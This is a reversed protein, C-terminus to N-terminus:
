GPLVEGRSNGVVAGCLVTVIVLLVVWTPISLVSVLIMKLGVFGLILALAIPLTRFRRMAAAVVFYLSRLGLVAFVNSTFILFPDRTVAFVAPISDTAFAIDSLEVVVLAVLLPTAVWRNGRAPDRAVMQQGVLTSRVPLRRQLTRLIVGRGSRRAPDRNHLIRVAALLVLVGFVYQVWEFRAVLLVGAAIFAGRMVVAGLVGWYLVRHQYAAPIQLSSFILAIVFVNDASLTQEIAYGTLFTLGTQVGVRWALLGAFALALAVWAATGRTAERVGIVHASRHWVGLDLALVVLVFGIFAFWVWLPAVV